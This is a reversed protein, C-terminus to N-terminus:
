NMWKINKIYNNSLFIFMIINSSTTDISVGSELPANNHPVTSPVCEKNCQELIDM